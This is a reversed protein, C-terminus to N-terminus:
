SEYFSAWLQPHFIEMNPYQSRFHGVLKELKEKQELERQVEADPAATTITKTLVKLVKSGEPAATKLKQLYM